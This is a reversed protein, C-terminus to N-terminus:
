FIYGRSTPSGVLGLNVALRLGLEIAVAEAWGINFELKLNVNFGPAWSWVAWHRGIGIGIGFSRSTDGWWQLDLPDLSWLPKSNPMSQLLFSVWSLNALLASPPHLHAQTSKFDHIFYTISWLFPRTLRFICSAHVLKGHLSAAEKASFKAGDVQWAHILSLLKSVKEVPFAM